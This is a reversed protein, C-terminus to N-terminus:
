DAGRVITEARSRRMGASVLSETLAIRADARGADNMILWGPYLASMEEQIQQVTVRDPDTGHATIIRLATTDSEPTRGPATTAGPTTGGGGSTAAPVPTLESELAEGGATVTLRLLSSATPGILVGPALTLSTALTGGIIRGTGGQVLRLAGASLWQDMLTIPLLRAAAGSPLLRSLTAAPLESAELVAGQVIGCSTPSGMLWRVIASPGRQLQEVAAEIGAAAGEGGEIVAYANARRAMSSTAEESMEVAAETFFLRLPGGHIRMLQGAANRVYLVSHNLGGETVAVISGRELATTMERMAEAQTRVIQGGERAFAETTERAAAETAIEGGERVVIAAGERRVVTRLLAGPVRVLAKAAVGASGITIFDLVLFGLGLTRQFYSDAERIQQISGYVPILAWVDQSPDPAGAAHRRRDEEPSDSTAWIVAGAVLAIGALILWLAIRNLDGGAQERLDIKQGAAAAKAAREAEHESRWTLNSVTGGGAGPGLRAQVVHALEHGLVRQGLAGAPDYAGAGFFLHDGLSFAHAGATAAAAAASPDTHVRVPSLDYGFSREFPARVDAALPAGPGAARLPPLRPPPPATALRLLLQGAGGLTSAVGPPPQPGPPPPPVTAPLARTARGGPLTRAVEPQFALAAALPGPAGPRKTRDSALPEAPAGARGAHAVAHM